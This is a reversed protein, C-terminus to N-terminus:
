EEPPAAIDALMSTEASGSELRAAIELLAAALVQRDTKKDDLRDTVRRIEAKLEDEAQREERKLSENAREYQERYQEVLSRLARMEQSESILSARLEKVDKDHGSVLIQLQQTQPVLKQLMAGQSRIRQLERELEEHSQQMERTAASLREQLSGRLEDMADRLQRLDNLTRDFERRLDALRRDYEEVKAGFLIDRMRNVEAERIPQRRADANGMIIERIRELDDQAAESGEERSPQTAGSGWATLLAKSGEELPKGPRSGAEDQGPVEATQFQTESHDAGVDLQSNSHEVM